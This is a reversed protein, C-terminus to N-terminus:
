INTHEKFRQFGTLFYHRKPSTFVTSGNIAEVFPIDRRSGHERRVPLSRVYASPVATKTRKKKGNNRDSGM